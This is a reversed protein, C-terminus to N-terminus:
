RAPESEPEADLDLDLDVTPEADLAAAQAAQEYATLLAAYRPSTALLHEHSGRGIVQGGELHVVEDALAITSRRQAVVVVTAAGARARLDALIAADVRPDVSATADDLVLLRPERLLARALCIRQRQGGSLSTGREGVMTDLGAPLRAVFRDAQARRLATWVADDTAALGLTINARVSDDFLFAQQAVVAVARSVEGVALDRLDIGDVRVEGDDPDVLRALLGVLTSKGAGTRGTIAVVSGPAVEVGVDLLTPRAAMADPAGVPVPEGDPASRPYTYTVQHLSLAAPGAASLTRPGHQEDSRAQTVADVRQRGAVSRPLEGFVWGFVWGFARLPFALLTFLYAVRVLQGVDIAGTRIRVAGVLLVVLIGLNPLAEMLPDFMGRLRGASIMADRLREARDAFRATEEEERGLAKVVLAGDFSEHAVASVEGRLQQAQAYLPSARRAYWINLLGFTPFVALGILALVPDTLVLLVLAAALMMLAGLAFPLPMLPSWMAEVDANANSLLAGTSHSQHGPCRCGCTSVPSRMATVPRSGSCWRAAPSGACTCASRGCAASPWSRWASPPSRPRTRTAM